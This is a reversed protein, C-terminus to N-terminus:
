KNALTFRSMISSFVTKSIIKDKEITIREDM